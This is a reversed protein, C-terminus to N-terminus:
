ARGFARKLETLTAEKLQWVGERSAVRVRVVPRDDADREAQGIELTESRGDRFRVVIKAGSPTFRGDEALGAARLNALTNIMAQAQKQDADMNPPQAVTWLNGEGEQALVVTLGGETLAVTEVDEREFSLLSRDRFAALPSTLMRGVQANTRFVEPRDDVKVFSAGEVDRSGLVVTHSAGDAMVVTATAAPADFGADYDPNHIEGARLHSLTRVASEVTEDDIPFPAGEMAWPGPIPEGEKNTAVSPGRHFRLTEGGRQIAFATAQARDFQLAVKDRWDAAPREWRARGGVDARYVADDEPLRVFTSGGAAPKGVVFSSVPVPDNGFLEVVLGNENDLGYQDLNGEDVKAEMQVGQGFVRLTSRIQAADAPFELPQVIRWREFDPTGRERSVRELTLKQVPTSVEIRHVSDPPVAALEPLSEVEGTGGGVLNFAALVVALVLLALTKRTPKM